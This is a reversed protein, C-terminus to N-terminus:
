FRSLHYKVRQYKPMDGQAYFLRAAEELNQRSASKDGRRLLALGKQFFADAKNAQSVSTSGSTCNLCPRIIYAQEYDAKAGKGDGLAYRVLARHVYTYAVVWDDSRPESPDLEIARTYDALASRYDKLSAYVAARGRYASADEPRLQIIKTYDAIASSPDTEELLYAREFYAAIYAPDAKIAANCNDLAAKLDAPKETYNTAYLGALSYFARSNGPELKTVRTFDQIAEQLKGVSALYKGRIFYAEAYGANVQIAQTFDAIAGKEDSTSDYSGLTGVFRKVRMILRAQGRHYYANAFKPHLSITHTFDDEASELYNKKKLMEAKPLRWSREEDFERAMSLRALARHFVVASRSGLQDTQDSEVKEEPSALRV